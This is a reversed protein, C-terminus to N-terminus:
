GLEKKIQIYLDVLDKTTIFDIYDGNEKKSDDYEIHYDFMNSRSKSLKLPM